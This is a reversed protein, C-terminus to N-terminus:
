GKVWPWEYQVAKYMDLCKKRLTFQVTQVGIEYPINLLYFLILIINKKPWKILIAVAWKYYFLIHKFSLGLNVM